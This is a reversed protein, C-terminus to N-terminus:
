RDGGHSPDEEERAQHVLDATTLPAIAREQRAATIRAVLVRRRALEEAPPPAILQQKLQELSM